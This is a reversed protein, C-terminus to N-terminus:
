RDILGLCLHWPGWLDTPRGQGAGRVRTLCSDEVKLRNKHSLSTIKAKRPLYPRLIECFRISASLGLGGSCFLKLDLLCCPLGSTSPLCHYATGRRKGPLRAQPFRQARAQAASEPGKLRFATPPKEAVGQERFM